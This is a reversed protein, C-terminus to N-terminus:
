CGSTTPSPAKPSGRSIRRQKKNASRTTLYEMSSECIVLNPVPEEGRDVDPLLPTTGKGGPEDELVDVAAGQIRGDKLVRALAAENVIGGRAINIVLAEKRMMELERDGILDITDDDKPVCVVITSSCRILEDFASRGQRLASASKREGILVTGFGVAKALMEIRKGLNGYGLIGLTEQNCGLPPQPREGNRAWRRTLTGKERWELGGKIAADVEGVRKRSAFYLALVHEGVADVNGAPCNTVTVGRKAFEAKQVWSIGVAMIALCGLQPSSDLHEPTVPTVCAIVISADKVRKAVEDPQTRPYLTIDHPFDFTPLPAHISELVVIHHKDRGEPFVNPGRAAGSAMTLSQSRAKVTPNSLTRVRIRCFSVRFM